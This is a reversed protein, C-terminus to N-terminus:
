DNANVEKLAYHLECWKIAAMTVEPNGTYWGNRMLLTQYQRPICYLNDIDFNERNGDLFIVIHGDPIKGNAQEWIYHHKFIWNQEYTKWKSEGRMPKNDLKISLYGGKWREAGLPSTNVSFGEGPKSGGSHGWRHEPILKTVKKKLACATLDVEFESNFDKVMEVTNKYDKVHSCIWREQEATYGQYTALGYKSRWVRIASETRGLAAAMEKNTMNRYNDIIFRKEEETYPRNKQADM